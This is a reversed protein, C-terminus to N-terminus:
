AWLKETRLKAAHMRVFVCVCVCLCVCVQSLSSKLSEIMGLTERNEIQSLRLETQSKALKDNLESFVTNIDTNSSELRTRLAAIVTQAAQLKERLGAVQKIYTYTHM